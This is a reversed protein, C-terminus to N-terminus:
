GHPLAQGGGLMVPRALGRRDNTPKAAIQCSPKPYHRLKFDVAMAGLVPFRPVAL